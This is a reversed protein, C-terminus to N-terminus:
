KTLREILYPKDIKSSKIDDSVPIIKIKALDYPKMVKLISSVDSIEPNLWVAEDEPRVIVPLRSPSMDDDTDTSTTIISCMGWDVGDADTWSGYIGAFAFISQDPLSIYFPSKGTKTTKFEYFGNAPILCRRTRIAKDWTPKNLVDEARANFTKYRFISNKDKAGAPIFGWKMTEIQCVGDRSVIVVVSQAPTINYHPKVGKPVGAEPAFRASIKNIEFLAYQSSMM